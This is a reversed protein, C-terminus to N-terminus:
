VSYVLSFIYSVTNTSNTDTAFADAAPGPVTLHHTM